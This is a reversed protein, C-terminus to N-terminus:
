MVCVSNIMDQIDNTDFGDLLRPNSRVSILEKVLPIRWENEGPHSYTMESKVFSKNLFIRDVNCERSINSINKCLVSRRDYKFLNYILRIILKSSNSLSDCFSIFRSCLMTKVHLSESVPEIFYRHTQRPLDFLIRVAVNWSTSIKNTNDCYLDWLNSGYFSCAYINYLKVVLTPESFHFEQNLSHVISIFKARKISCDKSMSNDSQFVHGLHKFDDVYPLPVGNLIIPCVNNVNINSKNFIVCKTKSKNINVNTSFKLENKNAFQECINTMEQLGNRSPALLIIDDAYIWVGLYIGQIQCGLTSSRLQKILDNIYICFLIPSSVAGQRVGNSVQFGQSLSNAWKVNCTQNRYIYILCRLSLASVGRKLLEPFLKSWAVLDFAKSLDMTCAYVARGAQNYYDIM